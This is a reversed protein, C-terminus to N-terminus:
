FFTFFHSINKIFGRRELKVSGSYLMIDGTLFGTFLGVHHTLQPINVAEANRRLYGKM